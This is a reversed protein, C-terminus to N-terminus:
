KVPKINLKNEYNTLRLDRTLSLEMEKEVWLKLNFLTNSIYSFVYHLLFVLTINLKKINWKCSYIKKLDKHKYVPITSKSKCFTAIKM